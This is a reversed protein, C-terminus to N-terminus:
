QQTGGGNMPMGPQPATPQLMEAMAQEPTTGELGQALGSQMLSAALQNEPKMQPFLKELDKPDATVIQHIAQLQADNFMGTAELKKMAEGVPGEKMRAIIEDSHAIGLEDLLAQQDIMGGKALDVHMNMVAARDKPLTSGADMKFAYEGQYEPSAGRFAITQQETAGQYTLKREETYWNQGLSIFMRGQTEIYIDGNRVKERIITQAKEQLQAIATGATIGSPRRGESVDTLGTVIEVLRLCLNIFNIYDPPLPPIQVWRIFQALAAVPRWIRNPRNNEDKSEVGCNKPLILPPLCSVDLHTSVKSIKKSIDIVLAEIQEIISLGYESTDDSYSLRKNFPFKDWLYCNCAIERPINPNISPNPVDSLVLKGENTVHICRLFGPYKSQQYPQVPVQAVNGTEDIVPQMTATDIAPETLKPPPGDPYKQGTRPDVWEMTYDKVWMEVVLARAIGEDGMDFPKDSEQAQVYGSPAGIARTEKSKNARVTVRDEGLLDSFQSEGKVKGEHDPWQEYIKGLDMAEAWVMMPQDQIEVCRPWLYVGFPDGRVTEIEGMGGELSPNFWMKDVAFGYLESKGVSEQLCTQQKTSEWWTDYREMWAKATDPDTEGTASITARPKADTLNSKLTQISKFFLNIGVQTYKSKKRFIRGRYLEHNHLWMQPLGLKERYAKM